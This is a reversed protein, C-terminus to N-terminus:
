LLLGFRLLLFDTLLPDLLIGVLINVPIVLIDYKGATRANRRIIEGLVSLEPTIGDVVPLLM